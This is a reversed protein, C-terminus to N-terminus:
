ATVGSSDSGNLINPLHFATSFAPNVGQPIVRNEYSETSLLLVGLSDWEGAIVSLTLETRVSPSPNVESQGVLWEIALATGFCLANFISTAQLFSSIGFARSTREMPLAKPLM